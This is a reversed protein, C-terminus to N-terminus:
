EVKPPTEELVAQRSGQIAAVRDLRAVGAVTFAMVRADESLASFDEKKMPVKDHWFALAERPPLPKFDFM